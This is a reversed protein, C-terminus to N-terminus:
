DPKGVGLIVDLSSSKSRRGLCVEYKKVLHYGPAPFNTHGHLKAFACRQIRPDNPVVTMSTLNFLEIEGGLKDAQTGTSEALDKTSM